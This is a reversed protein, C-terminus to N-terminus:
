RQQCERGNAFSPYSDLVVSDQHITASVITQTRWKALDIRACIDGNHYKSLCFYTWHHTSQGFLSAAYKAVKASVTRLPAGVFLPSGEDWGMCVVNSCITTEM